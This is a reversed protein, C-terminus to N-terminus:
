FKNRFFQYEFGFNLSFNSGISNEDDSTIFYTAGYRGGLKLAFADIIRYSYNFELHLNTITVSRTAMESLPVFDSGFFIINDNFSKSVTGSPGFVFSSRNGYTRLMYGASIGIRNHLYCWSIFRNEQADLNEYDLLLEGYTQVSVGLQFEALLRDSLPKAFGMRININEGTMTTTFSQANRFGEMNIQRGPDIIMSQLNEFSLNKLTESFPSVTFSLSSLRNKLRTPEQGYSQGIVFACVLTLLIAKKM